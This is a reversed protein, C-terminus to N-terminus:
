LCLEPVLVLAALGAIVWTTLKSTDYGASSVTQALCRCATNIATPREPDAFASRALRDKEDIFQPLPGISPCDRFLELVDDPCVPCFAQFQHGGGM